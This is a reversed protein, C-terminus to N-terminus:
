ILTKSTSCQTLELACIQDPTCTSLAGAAALMVVGRDGIAQRYRVGCRDGAQIARCVSQQDTNDVINDRRRGEEKKGQPREENKKKEKPQQNNEQQRTRKM